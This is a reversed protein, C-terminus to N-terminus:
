RGPRRRRRRRHPFEQVMLLAALSLGLGMPVALTPLIVLRPPVGVNTFWTSLSTYFYAGAVVMVIVSGIAVLNNYRSRMPPIEVRHDSIRAFLPETADCLRKM